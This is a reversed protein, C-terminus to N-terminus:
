RHEIQVDTKKAKEKERMSAAQADLCEAQWEEHEALQKKTDQIYKLWYDINVLPISFKLSQGSASLSEEIGPSYAYLGADLLISRMKQVYSSAGTIQLTVPSEAQRKRYAAAVEYDIAPCLEASLVTEFEGTQSNIDRVHFESSPNEKERLMAELAPAVFITKREGLKIKIAASEYMARYFQELSDFRPDNPFLLEMDWYDFPKVRQAPLIARKYLPPCKTEMQCAALMAQYEEAEYGIETVFKTQRTFTSNEVLWRRLDLEDVMIRRQSTKEHKVKPLITRCTHNYSLHLRSAIENVTVIPTTIM